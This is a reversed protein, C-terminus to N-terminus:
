GAWSELTYNYLHRAPPCRSVHGRFYVCLCLVRKLTIDKSEAHKEEIQHFLSPPQSILAYLTYAAVILYACHKQDQLRNAQMISTTARNSSTAAGMDFQTTAQLHPMGASLAPHHKDTPLPHTRCPGELLPSAEPTAPGPPRRCPKEASLCAM